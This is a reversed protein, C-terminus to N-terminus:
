KEYLLTIGYMEEDRPPSMNWDGYSHSDDSEYYLAYEGAELMIVDNFYRNKKAGGAHTTKRYTMEWVVRDNDKKEIWGYDFMGGRDGEGLAIIRIKTDRKLTFNKHRYESNRVRVFQAIVNENQYNDPDFKNTFKADDEDVTWVTIGWRERDFPATANWDDFSHSDDSSYYVIYSGKRFEVREDIMRNKDAGGAHDTWSGRMDWIVKRTDADVIWGADVMRDKSTGEGLCLIRLEMDKKLEIGQSLFEDDGVRIMEVIPKQVDVAKFAAVNKRQNEDVLSVTVGYFQPDDPPLANWEEYSHSDDTVFYVMYSGPALTVEENVLINKEAGGAWDPFHDNMSWVRRNTRVDYIWAYDNVNKRQGEGISYIKLETDATLTFGKKVYEDDGIRILSVVADKEIRDTFEYRNKEIFLNSSASLTMKLDKSFSKRYKRKKRGFLKDGFNGFNNINSWYNNHVGAYYIEYNGKPLIIEDDFEMMGSLDRLDDEFDGDISHWVVERTDANLIWGYFIIQSDWKSFAGGSGEITIDADRELSFAKIDLDGINVNGVEIRSSLQGVTPIATILLIGVVLIRNLKLM